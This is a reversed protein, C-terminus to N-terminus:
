GYGSHYASRGTYPNYAETSRSYTNTYPNYSSSSTVPRGTYPNYAWGGRYSNGTYPNRYGYSSAGGYRGTYSNHYSYGGRYWAGADPTFTLWATVVVLAALVSSRNMARRRQLGLRGRAGPGRAPRGEM